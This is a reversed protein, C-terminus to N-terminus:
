KQIFIQELSARSVSLFRSRCTMQLLQAAATCTEVLQGVLSKRTKKSLTEDWEHLVDAESGSTRTSREGANRDRLPSELGALFRLWRWGDQGGGDGTGLALGDGGPTDLTARPIQLTQEWCSKSLRGGHFALRGPRVLRETKGRYEQWWVRWPEAVAELLFGSTRWNSLCLEECAPM